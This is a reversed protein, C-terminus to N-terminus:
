VYSSSYSSDTLSSATSLSSVAPSSDSSSSNVSSTSSKSSSSSNLSSTSSSSSNLSSPTSMSSHSPSSSSSASFPSLSSQSSQTSSSEVEAPLTKDKINEGSFIGWRAKEDEQKLVVYTKPKDVNIEAKGAFRDGVAYQGRIDKLLVQAVVDLKGVGPLDAVPNWIIHRATGTPVNDGVDGTASATPVNFSNGDDDSLLLTVSAPCIESQNFYDYWIDVLDSGDTRQTIGVNDVVPFGNELAFMRVARFEHVDGEPDEIGIEAYMVSQGTVMQDKVPLFFTHSRMTGSNDIYTEYDRGNIGLKIAVGCILHEETSAQFSVEVAAIGILAINLNKIM